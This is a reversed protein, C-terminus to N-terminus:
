CACLITCKCCFRGVCVYYQASVAFGGLVCVYYQASLAFGGLVCVYYQASLAFGGLVFIIKNGLVVTV